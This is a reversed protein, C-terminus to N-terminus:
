AARRMAETVICDCTLWDPVWRVPMWYSDERDGETWCPNGLSDFFLPVPYECCAPRANGMHFVNNPTM